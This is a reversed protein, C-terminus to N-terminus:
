DEKIKLIESGADLILKRYKAYSFHEDNYELLAANLLSIVSVFEYSNNFLDNMGALKYLLNNFAENVNINDYQNKTEPDVCLLLFYIQKRLHEKTLQIQEVTFTGYKYKM